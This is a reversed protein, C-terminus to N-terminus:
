CYQSPPPTHPTDTVLPCPDPSSVPSAESLLPSSYPLLQSDVQPLSCVADSSSWPLTGPILPIEPIEVVSFWTMLAPNGRKKPFKRKKRWAELHIAWDNPHGLIMESLHKLTSQMGGWQFYVNPDRWMRFVRLEQSMNLFPIFPKGDEPQGLPRWFVLDVFKFDEPALSLAMTVQRVYPWHIQTAACNRCWDTMDSSARRERKSCNCTDGPLQLSYPCKIELLGKTGNRLQVLGDPSAVLNPKGVFSGCDVASEVWELAQYLERVYDEWKIGWACPEPTGENRTPTIHQVFAEVQAAHGMEGLAAAISSSTWKHARLAFWADSRQELDM